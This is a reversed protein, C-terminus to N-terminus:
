DSKLNSVESPLELVMGDLAASAYIQCGLRSNPKVAAALDLMDQPSKPPSHSDTSIRHPCRHYPPLFSAVVRRSSLARPPHASRTCGIVRLSGLRQATTHCHSICPAACEGVGVGVEEAESMEPLKKFFTPDVYVHCTSCAAEGDCAGTHPPPHPHPAYRVISPADPESLWHVYGPPGLCERTHSEKGSLAVMRSHM